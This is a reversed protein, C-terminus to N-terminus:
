VLKGDDEIELNSVFVRSLPESDAGYIIKASSGTEDETRRKIREGFTSTSGGPMVHKDKNM